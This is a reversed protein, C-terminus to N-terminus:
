ELVMRRNENNKDGKKGPRKAGTFNVVHYKSMFGEAWFRCVALWKPTFDGIIIDIPTITQKIRSPANQAELWQSGPSTQRM